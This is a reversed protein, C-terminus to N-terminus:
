AALVVVSLHEKQKMDRSSKLSMIMYQEADMFLPAVNSLRM